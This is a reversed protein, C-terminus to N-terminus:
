PLQTTNALLNYIHKAINNAYAHNYKGTIGFTNLVVLDRRYVFDVQYYDLHYISNFDLATSTNGINPSYRTINIELVHAKSANKFLHGSANVYYTGNTFPNPYSPSFSANNYGNLAQSANHYAIIIMYLAAPYTINLYATPIIPSYTINTEQTGVMIPTTFNLGYISQYEDPLTVNYYMQEFQSQDPIGFLVNSRNIALTNLTTNESFNLREATTLSSTNTSISTTVVSVTSTITYNQNTHLKSSVLILIVIAIIVILGIITNRVRKSEPQMNKNASELEVM